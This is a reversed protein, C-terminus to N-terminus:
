SRALRRLPRFVSIDDYFAADQGDWWGPVGAVPLPTLMATTFGEMLSTSVAKDIWRRKEEDSRAFFEDDARVLWSHATAAKYPMVLKELLAHGFLWVDWECGFAARHEAFIMKWDHARLAAPFLSDRYVVIAANEDFITAADRIKGRTSAVGGNRAIEGAQLANLQVKMHPFHRWMLANFFDHLNDRSPVQGTASIFAEYAVGAPLNEQPVFCIPLGNHNRLKQVSVAETAAKRWDLSDLLPTAGARFPALWPKSWDIAERFDPTTM